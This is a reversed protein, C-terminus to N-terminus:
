PPLPISVLLQGLPEVELGVPQSGALRYINVWKAGPTPPLRVQLMVDDTLKLRAAQPTGDPTTVNPDLVVCPEDPAMTTEQALVHMQADLVRICWMGPRWALPGRRRHFDGVLRETGALTVVGGKLVFRYAQMETNGSKPVYGALVPPPQEEAPPMAPKVPPQPLPPPSQRM